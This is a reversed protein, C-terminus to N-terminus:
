REEEENGEEVCAVIKVTTCEYSGNVTAKLSLKEMIFRLFKKARAKSTEAAVLVDEPENEYLTVAMDQTQNALVSKEM